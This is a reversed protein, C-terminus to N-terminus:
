EKLLHKLPNLHRIHCWLFCKNDNSKINILAKMSHKLKYPLEIYTSGSLPSYISVNVYETETSEIELDYGENIWNNIRHLIEQFSKDLNYESNIVTKIASNFYVPDFELDGNGRYKSLM